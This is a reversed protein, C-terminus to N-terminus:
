AAPEEAATKTFYLAMTSNGTDVSVSMMGDQLIEAKITFSMPQIDNPIDITYILAGNEYTLPIPDTGLFFTVADANGTFSVAGNEIKVGVDGMGGAAADLTMGAMSVYSITWEGEFDEAAANPNVEAITIGEARERGFEIIQEGATITLKGDALTGETSDEVGNQVITLVFKEGDLSWTGNGPEGMGTIAMSATGDANLTLIMDIGYHNAYWEGSIDEEAMAPILMCTMCLILLLSILKKM